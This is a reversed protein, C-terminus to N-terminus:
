VSKGSGASHTLLAGPGDALELCQNKDAWPLPWGQCKAESEPVSHSLKGASYDLPYLFKPIAM